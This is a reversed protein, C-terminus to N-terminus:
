KKCDGEIYLVSSRFKGRFIHQGQEDGDLNIPNQAKQNSLHFVKSKNKIKRKREFGM